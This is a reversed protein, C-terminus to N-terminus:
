GNLSLNHMRAWSHGTTMMVLFHGTFDSFSLLSVVDSIVACDICCSFLVVTWSKNVPHVYVGRILVLVVLHSCWQSGVTLAMTLVVTLVVTLVLRQMFGYISKRITTEFNCINHQAYMASVSSKKPLGFIKRHANNFAVRIKKFDHRLSFWM